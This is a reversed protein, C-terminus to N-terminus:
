CVKSSASVSANLTYTGHAGRYDALGSPVSIGAGTLLAIRASPSSPHRFFRELARVAGVPTTASAPFVQPPPLPGPFPIRMLLPAPM